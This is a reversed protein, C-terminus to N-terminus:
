QGDDYVGPDKRNEDSNSTLVTMVIPSSRNDAGNVINDSTLKADIMSVTKTNGFTTKTGSASTAKTKTKSSVMVDNAIECCQHNKIADFKIPYPYYKKLDQLKKRVARSTTIFKRLSSQPSSQKKQKTLRHDYYCHNEIENLLERSQKTQRSKPDIFEVSQDIQNDISRSQSSSASSFSKTAVILDSSDSSVGSDSRSLQFQKFKSPEQDRDLHNKRFDDIESESIM